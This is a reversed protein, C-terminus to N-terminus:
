RIKLIDANLIAIFMARFVTQDRLGIQLIWSVVILCVVQSNNSRFSMYEYPIIITIKLLSNIQMTTIIWHQLM